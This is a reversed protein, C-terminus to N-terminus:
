SSVIAVPPAKRTPMKKFSDPMPPAPPFARPPAAAPSGAVRTARQAPANSPVTASGGTTPPTRRPPPKSAVAATGGAGPARKPAPTKPETTALAASDPAPKSTSLKVWAAIEPPLAPSPKRAPVSGMSARRNESNPELVTLLGGVSPARAAPSMPKPTIITQETGPTLLERTKKIATPAGTAAAPKKIPPRTSAIPVISQATTASNQASIPGSPSASPPRETSIGPNSPARTNPAKTPPVKVPHSAASPNVAASLKAATQTSMSVTSVTQTGISRTNRPMQSTYPTPASILPAFPPLLKWNSAHGSVVEKQPTPPANTFPPLLKWRSDKGALKTNIATVASPSTSISIMKWRSDLDAASTNRSTPPVLPSSLTEQGTANPPPRKIPARSAVSVGSQPKSLPAQPTLRSSSQSTPASPAQSTQGDKGVMGTPPLRRTEPNLTFLAPTQKLVSSNMITIEDRIRESNPVQSARAGGQTSKALPRPKALSTTKPPLTKDQPASATSSPIQKQSVMHETQSVNGSEVVTISTGLSSSPVVKVSLSRQQASNTPPNLPRSENSMIDTVPLPQNQIMDIFAETQRSSVGTSELSQGPPASASPNESVTQSHESPAQIGITHEIQFPAVEHSLHVVGPQLVNSAPPSTTGTSILKKEPEEIPQVSTNKTMVSSAPSTGAPRRVVGTSRLTAMAVVQNTTKHNVMDSVRTGAMDTAGPTRPVEAGQTSPTQDKTASPKGTPSTQPQSLQPPPPPASPTPPVESFAREAPIHKETKEEISSALIQESVMDKAVDGMAEEAAVQQAPTGAGSNSAAVIRTIGSSTTGIRANECFGDTSSKPTTRRDSSLVRSVRDLSDESGHRRRLYVESADTAPKTDLTSGWPAPGSVPSTASTATTPLKSVPKTNGDIMGVDGDSVAAVAASMGSPCVNAPVQTQTNVSGGPKETPHFDDGHEKSRGAHHCDEDHEQVSNTETEFRSTVNGRKRTEAKTDQQSCERDNSPENNPLRDDDQELRHGNEDPLRLINDNRLEQYM